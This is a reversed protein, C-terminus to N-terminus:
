ESTDELPFAHRTVADCGEAALDIEWFADYIETAPGYSAATVGLRDHCAADVGVAEFFWPITNSHGVVLVAGPGPHEAAWADLLSAIQAREITRPEVTFELDHARAPFLATHMTRTAPSAVVAVLPVDAFRAALREARRLGKASLPQLASIESAPPWDDQKEAHRVLFVRDLAHATTAMVMAGVVAVLLVSRRSPPTM